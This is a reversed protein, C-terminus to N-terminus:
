KILVHVYWTGSIVVLLAGLMVHWFPSDLSFTEAGKCDVPSHRGHKVFSRKLPRRLFMLFVLVPDTLSHTGESVPVNRLAHFSVVYQKCTALTNDTSGVSFVLLSMYFRVTVSGMALCRSVILTGAFVCYYPSHERHAVSCRTARYCLVRCTFVTNEM